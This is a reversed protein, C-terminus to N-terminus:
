YVKQKNLGRQADQEKGKGIRIEGLTQAPNFNWSSIQKTPDTYSHAINM